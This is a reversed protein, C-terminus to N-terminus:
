RANIGNVFTLYCAFDGIRKRNYGDDEEYGLCQRWGADKGQQHLYRALMNFHTIVSDHCSTRRSDREMKEERNLLPWEARILAYRNAVALLEVYLEKAENDIQIEILIEKHLAHMEEMSLAKPNLLYDNYSYFMAM